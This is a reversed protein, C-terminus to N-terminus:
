LFFIAFLLSAANRCGGFRDLCSSELRAKVSKHSKGIAYGKKEESQFKGSPCLAIAIGYGKLTIPRDFAAM